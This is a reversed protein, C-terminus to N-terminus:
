NNNINQKTIMKTYVLNGIGSIEHLKMFVYNQNKIYWDLNWDPQQSEFSGREIIKWKTYEVDEAIYWIIKIKRTKNNLREMLCMVKNMAIRIIKTINPKDFIDDDVHRKFTSPDCKEGNYKFLIDYALQSFIFRDNIIKNKSKQMQLNMLDAYIDSYLHMNYLTQMYPTTAKCIFEPYKELYYLFDYSVDAITTKGLGSTGDCYIVEGGNNTDETKVFNYTETHLQLNPQPDHQRQKKDNIKKMVLMTFTFLFSMLSGILSILFDLDNVKKHIYTFLQGIFLIFCGCVLCTLYNFSILNNKHVFSGIIQILTGANILVGSLILLWSNIISTVTTNSLFFTIIFNLFTLSVFCALKANLIINFWSAMTKKKKRTFETISM